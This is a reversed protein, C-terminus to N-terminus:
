MLRESLSKRGAGSQMAAGSMGFGLKGLVDKAKGEPLAGKAASIVPKAKSYIEMGKSLMSGLKSFFGHGVLRTLDSRTGADPASIVDAESLPSLVLRSSGAQTEFFGSNVTIIYLVPNTVAATNTNQVRCKVQFAFNGLVGSALGAQLPIDVGPKLVLFGGVTQILGGQAGRAYGRWEDFSMELGNHVSMRYIQYQNHNNLIGSYNDLTINVNTIPLYWDGNSADAYASPKCYIIFMDPMSPLTVTSSSIEAEAGAAITVGNNTTIYRPFQMFPVRSITPLPLDLSPTLFQVALQSQSFPSGQVSLFQVSQVVRGAGTSYRLVRSVDSKLNLVLQMANVGFIGTDYEFADAYIFPSLCVNESSRAKIALPYAVPEAGGGQLTRVPYYKNNILVTNVTVGGSVYAAATLPAGTNPDVFEVDAWAGNPMEGDTTMDTYDGLPSNIAQYADNYSGYRDLMTPATRVLRNRKYDTLRLIELLVDGTNLISSTDNITAQATQVMAHLPLPALAVDRGFVLVQDGVVGALGASPVSLSLYFYSSWQIARDVFVNQSPVTINFNHQSASASIANFVSNTLSLSGKEVAYKAPHSYIRKDYVAMKEIDSAAMTINLAFM